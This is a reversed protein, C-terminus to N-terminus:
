AILQPEEQGDRRESGGRTANWALAEPTTGISVNEDIDATTLQHSPPEVVRTNREAM